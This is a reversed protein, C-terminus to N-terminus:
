FTFGPRRTFPEVRELANRTDELEFVVSQAKEARYPTKVTSRAIECERIRALNITWSRKSNAAVLRFRDDRESYELCYPTVVLYMIKGHRTEFRVHLNKEERLATLITQFCRVYAPDEYNDGDTYMDYRVIRDQSFLPEVDELGTADLGFLRIRPDDLLTRLWRKELLSLPEEPAKEWPVTLNKQLLCWEESQLAAPIVEKSEEFAREQVLQQIRDATLTGQVAEQLIAATTRYYVGYIEHYLM